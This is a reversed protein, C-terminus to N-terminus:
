FILTHFNHTFTQKADNLRHATAHPKAYTTQSAGVGQSADVEDGEPNMPLMDDTEDGNPAVGLGWMGLRSRNPDKHRVWM